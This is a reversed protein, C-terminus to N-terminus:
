STAEADVVGPIALLAGALQRAEYLNALFIVDKVRGPTVQQLTVTGGPSDFCRVYGHTENEPLTEGLVHTVTAGETWGFGGYRGEIEAAATDAEEGSVDPLTVILRRTKIESM